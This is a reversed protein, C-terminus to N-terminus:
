KKDGDSRLILDKAPPTGYINVILSHVYFAWVQWEEEDGWSVVGSRGRGGGWCTHKALTPQIHGKCPNPALLHFVQVIRALMFVLLITDSWCFAM